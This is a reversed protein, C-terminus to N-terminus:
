AHGDRTGMLLHVFEDLRAIWFRAIHAGVLTWMRTLLPLFLLSENNMRLDIPALLYGITLVGNQGWRSGVRSNGALARNSNMVRCDPAFMRARPCSHCSFAPDVLHAHSPSRFLLCVVLGLAVPAPVVASNM